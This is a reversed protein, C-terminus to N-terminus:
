VSICAAISDMSALLPLLLPLLVAQSLYHRHSQHRRITLRLHRTCSNDAALDPWDFASGSVTTCVACCLKGSALQVAQQRPDIRSRAQAIRPLRSLLAQLHKRRAAPLAAPM